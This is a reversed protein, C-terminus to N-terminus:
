SMPDRIMRDNNLSVGGVICKTGNEGDGVVGIFYMQNSEVEMSEGRGFQVVVGVVFFEKGNKFSEMDPSMVKFARCSWNINNGVVFVQFIKRSCLDKTSVM